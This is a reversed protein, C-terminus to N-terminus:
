LVVLILKMLSTRLNKKTSILMMTGAPPHSVDWCYFRADVNLGKGILKDGTVGKGGDAQGGVLKNRLNQKIIEFRQKDNEKVAQSVSKRSVGKSDEWPQLFVPSDFYSLPMGPHKRLMNVASQVGKFSETKPFKQDIAPQDERRRKRANQFQEPTYITVDKHKGKFHVLVNDQNFEAWGAHTM